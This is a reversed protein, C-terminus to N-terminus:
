CNLNVCILLYHFNIFLIFPSHLMSLGDLKQFWSPPEVKTLSILSDTIDNTSKHHNIKNKTIMDISLHSYNEKNDDDNDKLKWDLYNVKEM